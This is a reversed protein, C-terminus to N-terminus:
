AYQDSHAEKSSVSNAKFQQKELGWKQDYAVRCKCSVLM